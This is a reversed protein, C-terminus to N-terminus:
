QHLGYTLTLRGGNDVHSQSPENSNREDRFLDFDIRLRRNLDRSVGLTVGTDDDERTGANFEFREFDLTLRAEWSTAIRRAFEALLRYRSRDRATTSLYDDDDWSLHINASTGGRVYAYEAWVQQNEFPEGNAVTLQPDGVGPQQFRRFINGADSFGRDYGLSFESSASLERNWSLGALTGTSKEGFDRIENTGLRVEISGRSIASNFQVFISNRDYDSFLLTEDYEIRDASVNVSLSRNATLTRVLALNGRLMTNDDNSIEFTTDTYRAGFTISTRSGMRMTFDPGTSFSNINELNDPTRARFPDSILTGYQDEIVWSLVQPALQFKAMASASSYNDDEFSDEIYRRFEFDGIIYGSFRASEHAVNLTVGVLAITDDIENEETRRANDRYEAGIRFDLNTIEASVPAGILTLVVTFFFFASKMSMLEGYRLAMDM